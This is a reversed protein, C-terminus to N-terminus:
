AAAFAKERNMWRPLANLLAPGEVQTKIVYELAGLQIARKILTPESFNSMVVVPTNKTEDSARLTQLVLIGNQRPMMVDLLIVQPQVRTCLDVGSVGDNAVEVQYGNGKFLTAYYSAATHDDEIIVITGASPRNGDEAVPMEPDDAGPTEALEAGGAHEADAASEPSTPRWADYADASDSERTPEAASTTEIPEEMAPEASQVDSLSTDDARGWPESGWASDSTAPEPETAAAEAPAAQDAGRPEEGFMMARMSRRADPKRETERESGRVAAAEAEPADAVPEPDFSATEPADEVSQPQESETAADGEAPAEDAPAGFPLPLSEEEKAPIEKPPAAPDATASAPQWPATPAPVPPSVPATTVPPTVPGSTTQAPPTWGTAPAPEIKQQVMKELNELVNFNFRRRKPKGRRGGDQAPPEGSAPEVAPPNGFVPVGGPMNPGPQAVPPAPMAPGSSASPYSPQGFPPPPGYLGPGSPPPAQPPGMPPAPQPQYFPAQGPQAGPMPRGAGAPFGWPSPPPPTPAAWPANPTAYPSAMGPQPQPPGAQAPNANPAWGAPTPPSYIQPGSIGAKQLATGLNRAYTRGGKVPPLAGGEAHSEDAPPSAAYRRGGGGSGGSKAASLDRELRENRWRTILLQITFWALLAALLVIVKDRNAFILHSFPTLFEQLGSM